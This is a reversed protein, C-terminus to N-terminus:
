GVTKGLRDASPGTMVPEGQPNTKVIVPRTGAIISAGTVATMIVFSMAWAPHYAWLFGVTVSSILDGIGQVTALVGFGVGRVTSPLLTAATSNELTEWVGMYLGAFAFVIAFKLFSASPFVLAVAPIVAIAYGIALVWNRPFRDALAGSFYSSLTYIVNYGIYFAMAYSAARQIGFRPAWAQTAWLILLTNSFDGLGAIGVGILYRYFGAPLTKMGATLGIPPNPAHQKERVLFVICLVALIGPIITFAFLWRFHAAGLTSILLLSACPGLVAGASDMARELGFARGYTKPTTAETLIVNRVPTRAGRGIWGFVRGLLVHWWQTALAFSAMGAATVFYGVAALPKRKTLRDSYVGSFLKAFSSLGDALGEILGLAGSSAGLSALLAPMATTAMEHGVDSLLSAAGIGLVTSNLWKGAPPTQGIRTM